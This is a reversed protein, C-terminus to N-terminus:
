ISDIIQSTFSDESLIVDPYKELTCKIWIELIEDVEQPTIKGHKIFPNLYSRFIDDINSDEEKSRVYMGGVMAEVEEPLKFYEIPDNAKDRDKTPDVHGPEKNWGIQKTHLLEHTVLDILRYELEKYISEKFKSNILIHFTIEPILTDKSMYTEADISYGNRDFNLIEWSLNVFHSDKSFNTKSEEKVKIIVDFSTKSSYELKDLTKYEGDILTAEKILDIIDNACLLAESHDSIKENLQTYSKIFKM